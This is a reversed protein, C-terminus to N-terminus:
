KALTLEIRFAHGKADAEKPAPAELIATGDKVRYTFTQGTMPDPPLPLGVEGLAAPWKGGHGAAYDRLGEVNALLALRRDLRLQARKVKIVAPALDALLAEKREAELRLGAALLPAEAQAYPLFMWKVVDDRAAEYRRFEDLLLAQLAPMRAAEEASAGGAQLRRRAAAVAAGDQARAKLRSIADKAEGPKDPLMKVLKEARELCAALQADTLPAFGDLLGNFEVNILMREGGMGARYDIFPRPLTAYAWFLNPAGPQAALEELPGIAVMGVANGVLGGILTPHHNLHRALSLMAKASEVAQAFAGAKVEGRMRVKMANALTRLQQLEPLLLQIGDRKAKLLTQWDPSDLRAAWDMQRLALGGYNKVKDLPLEALPMAMLQDREELVKPNHFFNQQEGFCVLYGHIPNGPQMEKLEPLLQFRLAPQPAAAPTVRLKVVTGASTEETQAEAWASAALAALLFWVSTTRWLM